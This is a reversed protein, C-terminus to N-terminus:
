LGTAAWGQRSCHRTDVEHIESQQLWYDICARDGCRVCHFHPAGFLSANRVQRAWCWEVREWIEVTPWSMALWVLCGVVLLVSVFFAFVRLAAVRRRDGSSRDAFICICMGAIFGGFHMSNSSHSNWTLQVKVIDAVAIGSLLALKEKPYPTTSWSMGLHVWHMGLMAYCGGSMGVVEIHPDSVFYCLAGGLVGLNFILAVWPTGMLRELPIGTLLLMCFNMLLHWLGTHMFQHALWRWVEHRMDTCDRQVALAIRSMVDRAEWPALGERVVGYVLIAAVGQLVSFWPWTPRRLPGSSGGLSGCAGPSAGSAFTDLTNEFTPPVTMDIEQAVRPAAAVAETPRFWERFFGRTHSSTWTAKLHHAASNLSAM